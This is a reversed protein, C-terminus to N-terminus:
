LSPGSGSVGGQWYYCDILQDVQALKTWFSITYESSSGAQTRRFIQNGAGDRFRLSRGILTGPGPGPGPGPGDSASQWWFNSTDM